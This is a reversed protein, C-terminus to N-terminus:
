KMGISINYNKDYRYRYGLNMSIGSVLKQGASVFNASSRCTLFHKHTQTYQTRTTDTNGTKETVFKRPKIPSARPSTLQRLGRRLPRARPNPTLHFKGKSNVTPPTCLFNAHAHVSYYHIHNIQYSRWCQLRPLDCHFLYLLIVRTMIIKTCYSLFLSAYLLIVWTVIFSFCYYLEVWM